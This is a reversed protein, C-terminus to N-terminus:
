GPFTGTNGMALPLVEGLLHVKGNGEEWRGSLGSGENGTQLWESRTLSPVRERGCCFGHSGGPADRPALRSAPCAPLAPVPVALSLVQSCGPVRCGQADERCSFWPEGKHQQMGAGPPPPGSGHNEWPCPCRDWAMEGQGLSSTRGSALCPRGSCQSLLPALPFRRPIITPVCPFDGRSCRASGAAKGSRLIGCPAAPLGRHGGERLLRM